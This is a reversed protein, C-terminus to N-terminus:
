TDSDFEPQDSVISNISLNDAEKEDEEKIYVEKDDVVDNFNKELM